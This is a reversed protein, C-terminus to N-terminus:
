FWQKDKLILQLFKEYTKEHRKQVRKSLWKKKHYHKKEEDTAPRLCMVNEHWVPVNAYYFLHNNSLHIAECLVGRQTDVGSLFEVFDKGICDDNRRLHYDCSEKTSIIKTVTGVPNGGSHSEVVVIEGARPEYDYTIMDKSIWWGDWMTRNGRLVSNLIHKPVPKNMLYDMDHIFSFKIENRFNVGFENIFEEETKIRFKKM